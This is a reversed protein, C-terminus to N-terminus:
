FPSRPVQPMGVGWDTVREEGETGESLRYGGKSVETAKGVQEKRRLENRRMDFMSRHLAFKRHSAPPSATPVPIPAPVPPTSPKLLPPDTPKDKDTGSTSKPDSTSKSKKSERAQHEAIM